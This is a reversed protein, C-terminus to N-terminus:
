LDDTILPLCELKRLSTVDDGRGRHKIEEEAELLLDFERGDTEVTIAQPGISVSEGLLTAEFERALL